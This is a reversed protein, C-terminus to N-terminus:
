HNANKEKCNDFHSSKFRAGKGTRNCKPCIYVILFHHSGDAIRKLNARHATKSHWESNGQLNHTGERIRRQHHKGGIFNHTGNKIRKKNRQSAWESLHEANAEMMRKAAMSQAEKIADEKGMQGSLTKWAIYDEYYNFTEWLLRHANAHQEVTLEVKNIPDEWVM